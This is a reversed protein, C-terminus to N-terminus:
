FGEGQNECCELCFHARKLEDELLTTQTGLRTIQTVIQTELIVSIAAQKVDVTPMSSFSASISALGQIQAKLWDVYLEQSRNIADLRNKQNQLLQNGIKRIVVYKKIECIPLQNFWDIFRKYSYFQQSSIWSQILENDEKTFFHDEPNSALDNLIDNWNNYVMNDVLM